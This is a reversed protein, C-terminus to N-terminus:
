PSKAFREGLAPGPVSHTAKLSARRGNEEIDIDGKEVLPRDRVRKRAPKGTGLM